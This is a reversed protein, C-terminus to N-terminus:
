AGSGSARSIRKFAAAVQAPIGGSDDGQKGADARHGPSARGQAPRNPQNSPTGNSGGNKYAKKPKDNQPGGITQWNRLIGEVYNLNRANAKAARKMAEIVWTASYTRIDDDLSDSITQSLGGIEYQYVDCVKGFDAHRKKPVSEEEKEEEKSETDADPAVNRQTNTADPQNNKVQKKGIRERRARSRETSTSADQRNKFHTIYWVSDGNCNAVNLRQLEQLTENCENETIRLAWCIDDISPLEGEKDTEGALLFLQITHRFLKDSMKGMKPDYLIEHYLKIWYKSAM